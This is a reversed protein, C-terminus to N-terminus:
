QKKLLTPKIVLELSFGYGPTEGSAAGASSFSVTTFNDSQKLGLILKAIDTFSQATGSVSIRNRTVDGNFSEYSINKFTYKGLEEMVQSWFMHGELLGELNKLRAQYGIAEQLEPSNKKLQLDLDSIRMEAAGVEDDTSRTSFFVWGGGGMEGGPLAGVIYLPILSKRGAGNAALEPNLLNIEEKM